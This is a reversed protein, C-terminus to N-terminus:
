QWIVSALTPPDPQLEGVLYTAYTGPTCTGTGGASNCALKYINDAAILNRPQINSYSKTVSVTQTSGSITPYETATITFAVQTVMSYNCYGTPSGTPCTTYSSPVPLSVTDSATWSFNCYTINDILNYSTGTTSVSSLAWEKRVLSGPYTTPCVYEVAYLGNGPGNFEGFIALKSATSKDSLIGHPFVGM